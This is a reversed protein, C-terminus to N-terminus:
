RIWEPVWAPTLTPIIRRRMSGILQGSGDYVRLGSWSCRIEMVSPVGKNHDNTWAWGSGTQAYTGFTEIKVGEHVLSVGGESFEWFFDGDIAIGPDAVYRGTPSSPKNLLGATTILLISVGCISLIRRRKSM